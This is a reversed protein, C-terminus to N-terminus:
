DGETYFYHIDTEPDYFWALQGKADNIGFAIGPKNILVRHEPPLIVMGVFQGLTLPRGEDVISQLESADAINCDEQDLITQCTDWFRLRDSALLERLWNM